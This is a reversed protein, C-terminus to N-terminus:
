WWLALRNRLCCSFRALKKASGIVTKELVRKLMSAQKVKSITPDRYSKKDLIPSVGSMEILQSLKRPSHIDLSEKRNSTEIGEFDHLFGLNTTFNIFQRNNLIMFVSKQAEVMNQYNRYSSRMTTPNKNYRAM